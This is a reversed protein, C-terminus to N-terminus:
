GRRQSGAHRNRSRTGSWGAQSRRRRSFHAQGAAPATERPAAPQYDFDHCHIRELRADLLREINRVMVEDDRTVLTFAQGTREARGTRGIRHTYSEVTDPMDFNIVHSVRSVDIGRAAIDTAVLIRYRGQRFGDLALQRRRQSLNGQLSTVSQDNRKLQEALRKARHKTRTFVLASRPHHYKLLYKLLATKQHKEVPYIAHAVTEAPASRGIQITLPDRLIDRALSRIDTPMTASFMLTQRRAPVRSVIRRIDPLFGMDFMLDSSCM